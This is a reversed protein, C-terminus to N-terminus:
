RYPLAGNVGVGLARGLVLRLLLVDDGAVLDDGVRVVEFLDVADDVLGIALLDGDTTLCDVNAGVWGGLLALLGEVVGALGDEIDSM